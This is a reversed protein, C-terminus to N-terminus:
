KRLDKVAGATAIAGRGYPAIQTRFRYDIVDKLHDRRRERNHARRHVAERERRERVKQMESWGDHSWTDGRRLADLVQDDPEKYTGDPHSIEWVKTFSGDDAKRGLYFFGGRLEGVVDGDADKIPQTSVQAWTELRVDLAKLRKRFDNFRRAVRLDDRRAAALQDPLWLSM